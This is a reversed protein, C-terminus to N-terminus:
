SGADIEVTRGSAPTGKRLFLFVWYVYIVIVIVNLTYLAHGGFSGFVDTSFEPRYWLYQELYSVACIFSYTLIRKRLNRIDRTLSHVIFILGILIYYNNTKKSIILLLLCTVAYFSSALTFRDASADRKRRLFMVFVPIFVVIFTLAPLLNWIRTSKIAPLLNSVIFSLNGSTLNTGQDKYPSIIDFGFLLVSITLMLSLALPISGVLWRRRDFFVITPWSLVGLIKTFLFAAAGALGSFWAKGREAHIFSVKVWFTIM